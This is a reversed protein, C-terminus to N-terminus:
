GIKAIRPLQMASKRTVPGSSRTGTRYDYRSSTDVWEVTAAGRGRYGERIKTVVGVRFNINHSYGTTVFAVRDGVRVENGAIDLMSEM